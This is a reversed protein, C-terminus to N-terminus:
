PSEMVGNYDQRINALSIELYQRIDQSVLDKEVEHLCFLNLHEIKSYFANRILTEDRSSILVKLPIDSAYELILRILSSILNLDTCEDVADIIIIKYLKIGKGRTKCIPDHILRQFQEHLNNYTPEALAPDDKIAKVVESRMSPSDRALGWAIVPIILQANNSKQSARSVFFSAGLITKRDLIECLTHTITSKGTGAMGVMWYVKKHNADSAWAVLDELIKVRTGEMCGTPNGYSSHRTKYSTMEHNLKDISGSELSELIDKVMDETNLQTDMQFVDCLANIDQYVKLIIGVDKKGKATRALVSYDGLDEVVDIVKLLVGTAAKLPLFSDSCDNLGQLVTKFGEYAVSTAAKIHQATTEPVVPPASHGGVALYPNDESFNAPTSSNVQPAASAISTKSIDGASTPPTVVFPTMQLSDSNIPVAPTTAPSEAIDPSLKSMPTSINTKPAASAAGLSSTDSPSASQPVLPLIELSRSTTLAAPTIATPLEAAISPTTAQPAVLTPMSISATNPPM